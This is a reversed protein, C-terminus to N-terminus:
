ARAFGPARGPLFLLRWAVAFIACQPIFFLALLLMAWGGQAITGAVEGFGHWAVLATMVVLGALLSLWAFTKLSKM